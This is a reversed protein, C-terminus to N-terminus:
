ASGQSVIRNFVREEDIRWFALQEGDLLLVPVEDSYRELFEPHQNIDLTEASYGLDPREASLRGLVRALAAEAEACLHCGSRTILTLLM